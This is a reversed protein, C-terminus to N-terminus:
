LSFAAIPAHAIMPFNLGLSIRAAATTTASIVEYLPMAPSRDAIFHM